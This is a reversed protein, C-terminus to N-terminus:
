SIPPYSTGMGYVNMCICTHAHIHTTELAWICVHKCKGHALHWLGAAGSTAMQQLPQPTRLLPLLWRGPTMLNNQRTTYRWSYIECPRWSMHHFCTKAHHGWKVAYYHCLFECSESLRQLTQSTRLAGNFRGQNKTDTYINIHWNGTSNQINHPCFLVSLTSVSEGLSLTIIIAVSSVRVVADGAPFVDQERLVRLLTLSVTFVIIWTSLM